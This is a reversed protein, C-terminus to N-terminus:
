KKNKQVNRRPAIKVKPAAADVRKVRRPVGIELRQLMQMTKKDVSVGSQIASDVDSTAPAHDMRREREEEQLKLSIGRVPGRALRKMIHTAYGAIKNKLKKSQAITVDMIVRKNQYFDHNLKGYYKEVVQRSARKVTKTRIKGM